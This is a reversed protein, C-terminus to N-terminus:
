LQGHRRLKTEIRRIWDWQKQSIYATKGWRHIKSLMDGTFHREPDSLTPNASAIEVIKRAWDTDDGLQISPGKTAGSTADAVGREYGLQEGKRIGAAFVRALQEETLSTSSGNALLQGWDWDQAVVQAHAKRAAVLVVNDNEASLMRLTKILKSVEPTM